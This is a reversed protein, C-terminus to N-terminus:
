NEEEDYEQNHYQDEAFLVQERFAAVADLLDSLKHQALEHEVRQNSGKHLSEQHNAQRHPCRELIPM